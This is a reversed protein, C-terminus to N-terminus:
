IKIFINSFFGSVWETIWIEKALSINDVLSEIDQQNAEWSERALNDIAHKSIIRKEQEPVAAAAEWGKQHCFERYVSLEKSSNNLRYYVFKGM